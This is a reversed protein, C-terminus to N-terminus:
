FPVGEDDQVQPQQQPRPTELVINYDPDNTGQQKRDNKFVTIRYAAGGDFKINGSMYKTGTNKSTKLWLAGFGVRDKNKQENM